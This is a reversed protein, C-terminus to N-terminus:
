NAKKLLSKVEEKDTIGMARGKEKEGKFVILTSQKKVNLKKKLEDSNDYDVVLGVLSDFEKEKSLDELVAKQKKCTPCWTAHFDLAISKGSSQAEKFALDSYPKWDGAYAAFGPVLLSTLLLGKSFFSLNM